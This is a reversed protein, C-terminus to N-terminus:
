KLSERFASYTGFKEKLEKLLDAEQINLKAYVYTVYEGDYLKKRRKNAAKIEAFVEEETITTTKAFYRHIDPKSSVMFQCIPCFREEVSYRSEGDDDNLDAVSGDEQELMESECITHGNQCEVLEAESLGMDWGSEQRGCLDCIFSSSSSNSVFGQRVKM